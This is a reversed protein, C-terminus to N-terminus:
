HTRPQLAHSQRAKSVLAVFALVIMATLASALLVASWSVETVITTTPGVYPPPAPIPGTPDPPPIIAFASTTSMGVFLFSAVSWFALRLTKNM